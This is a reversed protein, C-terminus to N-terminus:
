KLFDSTKYCYPFRHFESYSKLTYLKLYLLYILNIFFINLNAIFRELRELFRFTRFNHFQEPDLFVYSFFLGDEFRLGKWSCYTPNHCNRHDMLLLCEELHMGGFRGIFRASEKLRQLGSACVVAAIPVLILFVIFIHFFM